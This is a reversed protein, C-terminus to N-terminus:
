RPFGRIKGIITSNPLDSEDFKELVKHSKLPHIMKNEKRNLIKTVNKFTNQPQNHM